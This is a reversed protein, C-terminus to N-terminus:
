RLKVVVITQDDHRDVQGTFLSVAELIRDRIQMADQGSVTPLIDLLRIEGFEEGLENQAETIGDSAFVLADGGRVEIQKEELESSFADGFQLGLGMGKPIIREVAHTAARYLYLPLHGARVVTVKHREPRFVAILATVFANPELDPWLLDNARALLEVPPVRFANLSRLIGQIKSMYLAASTGKGSVDGIIVTLAGGDGNLYDFFDGGVEQAPLSLGAVDLGPIDPTQSPLSGLQIRRAIELEHGMREKEAREEYLFSNEISVSMQKAAADLFALDDADLPTESMKEGLLLLATLREKSRIPVVSHFDNKGVLDKWPDPLYETRVPGSVRSLANILGTDLRPCIVEWGGAAMVTTEHCCCIGNDEFIFIGARKVKMLDILIEATGRALEKLGLKRALVEAMEGAARRYDFQTRFFMHDLVSQGGKRLRWLAYWGAVAALMGFGREMTRRGEDSPPAGGIEVSTGTVVINPLSFESAAVWLFLPVLCGALLLSWIVSLVMYQVNRRVRLDLGFLRYRGILYLYSTPIILLPVGIFPQLIGGWLVSFLIIGAGTAAISGICAIKVILRVRKEEGGEGKQAFLFVAVLIIGVAGMVALVLQNQVPLLLLPSLAALIYLAWLLKRMWGQISRVAPFLANAHVGLPFSFFGSLLVLIDRTTTFVEGGAERRLTNTALFFGLVLLWMGLLRGADFRHASMGIFVGTGIFFAGIILYVLNNLAFGFRVLTVALALNEDNRIVDYRTAVGSHGQRLILDAEQANSFTAGNIRYILDGLMMGARDSAGGPLVNVVAVTQPIVRVLSDGILARSVRFGAYRNESPRFAAVICTSDVPIALLATNWEELANLKKKNLSVILDGARLSDRSRALRKELSYIQVPSAALGTRLYLISPSTVFLNEDTASSAHRVFTWAGFTVLFVALAGFATRFALGTSRIAGPM